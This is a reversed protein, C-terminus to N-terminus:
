LKVAYFLLDTGLAKEMDVFSEGFEEGEAM